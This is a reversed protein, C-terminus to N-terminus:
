ESHLAIRNGESDIIIARNGFAGIEHAAQEVSGGCNEAEEIADPLRGDVNFYLLAGSKSPQHEESIYLCGSVEGADHAFVAVGPFEEKIGVRLVKSYFSIALNIDTVPVDFWSIRNAM